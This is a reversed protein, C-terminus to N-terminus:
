QTQVWSSSRSPAPLQGPEPALSLTRQSIGAIPMPPVVPRACPPIRASDSEEASLGARNIARTPSLYRARRAHGKYALHHSSLHKRQVTQSHERYCNQLPWSSCPLPAGTLLRTREERGCFPLTLLGRRVAWCLVELPTESSHTSLSCRPEHIRKRLHHISRLRMRQRINQM